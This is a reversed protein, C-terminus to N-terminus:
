KLLLEMIVALDPPERYYRPVTGIATFGHKENLAIMAANHQRTHTVIRAFGHRRAYAIQWSKFLNGFGMRQFRPLIGTTAIYLSRPRGPIKTQFACCGIKGADILLWYSECHKWDTVGFRDANSFIRRDFAVLSRLEGPLVAKRFQTEMSEHESNAPVARKSVHM